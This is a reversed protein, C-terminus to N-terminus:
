RYSRVGRRFHSLNADGLLFPGIASWRHACITQLDGMSHHAPEIEVRTNAHDRFISCVGLYEEM